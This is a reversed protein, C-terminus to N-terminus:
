STGEIEGYPQVPLYTVALKYAFFLSSLLGLTVLIEGVSPFYSGGYPSKYAALYVNVRNILLGFIALSSAFFLWGPSKRVKPFLLLVFPFIVGFLIEVVYANTQYTGDLLFVYTGRVLMDGMKLILYIGMLLPLYRALPALIDMMPKRGLSTRMFIHELIVVPYGGAIASMLFLLPLIPTYWLPHVKSPAILMIAGILSQHLCSFVIGIIVFILMVRNVAHNAFRLFSDVPRNLVSLIGTYSTKGVFREAVVPICLVYLITTSIMVCTATAFLVSTLNWNIMPSTSNWYRGVDIVIALIVLTYGVLAVIFAPRIILHFQKRNLVCAIAGTIFGGASLGSVGDINVGIWIGWPYADNTNTIYDLGGFFRAILGIAGAFMFVVLVKIGITWFKGGVPAFQDKM